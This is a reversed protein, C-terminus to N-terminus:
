TPNRIFGSVGKYTDSEYIRNRKGPREVSGTVNIPRTQLKGTRLEKIIVEEDSLGHNAPDAALQRGVENNYLDMLRERDANSSTIEHSDGFRKANEYGIEMAMKYNWLAHRFADAENNNAPGGPLAGDEIAEKTAKFAASSLNFAELGAGIKAGAHMAEGYGAPDFQLEGYMDAADVPQSTPPRLKIPVRPPEPIDMMDEFARQTPDQDRDRFTPSSMGAADGSRTRAPTPTDGLGAREQRLEALLARTDPDDPLILRAEPEPPAGAGASPKRIAGDLLTPANRELFSPTPRPTRGAEQPKAGRAREAARERRLEAIQTDASPNDPRRRRGTLLANIHEATPGNPEIVGDPKLGRDTQLQRIANDLEWPASRGTGFVPPEYYGVKELAKEVAVIDEPVDLKRIEVRRRLKFPRAM